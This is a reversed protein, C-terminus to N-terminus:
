RSLARRSSVSMMQAIEAVGHDDDLMVLIRDARGVIDDIDPGAGAHMAAFDDRLARRVLDHGIRRESM